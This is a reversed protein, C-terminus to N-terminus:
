DCLLVRDEIRQAMAIARRRDFEDGIEYLSIFRDSWFGASRPM